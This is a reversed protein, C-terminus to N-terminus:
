PTSATGGDALDDGAGTGISDDGAFSVLVNLEGNGILTDDGDTAGSGSVNVVTDTGDADTATDAALDVRIGEPPEDDAQPSYFDLDDGGDVADNGGGAGLEDDGALGALTDAPKQSWRM